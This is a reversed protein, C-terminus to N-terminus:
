VDGTFRLHHLDTLFPETFKGLSRLYEIGDHSISFTELYHLIHELGCAILYNRTPPLRRVFLDFVAVDNMSLQFYSELMTLEYFDTLFAANADNVWPSTM